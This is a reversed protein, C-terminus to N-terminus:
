FTRDTETDQPEGAKAKAWSFRPLGSSLYGRIGDTAVPPLDTRMALKVMNDLAMQERITSVSMSVEGIASLYVITEVLARKM